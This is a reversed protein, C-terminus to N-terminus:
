KIGSLARMFAGGLNRLEESLFSCSGMIAKVYAWHKYEEFTEENFVENFSAFYRPETVIIKEPVFGFLKKLLSKFKLPKM